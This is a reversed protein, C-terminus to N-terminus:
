WRPVLPNAGDTALGLLHAHAANGRKQGVVPRRVPAHAAHLPQEAALGEHRAGLPKRRYRDQLRARLAEGRSALLPGLDDRASPGRRYGWRRRPDVTPAARGLRRARPLPPRAGGAVGSAEEDGRREGDLAGRRRGDEAEAAPVRPGRATRAAVAADADRGQRD